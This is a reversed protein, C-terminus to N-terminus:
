ADAHEVEPEPTPGYLDAPSVGRRELMLDTVAWVLADAADPSGDGEYGDATFACLESELAPFSGAHHLRGQEYLLSLPEFRVQKARSATVMKIRIVAGARNAAQRIVHEAMDGGFNREVVIRDAEFELAAEVVRRGWGDPRLSCSRDALVYGEGAGDVGVVVIGQRDRETSGSPDVGVVVRRIGHRADPPVRHADIVEQSLLAGEVEELLEGDIEQRGIRTGEYRSVISRFFQDALNARNEHTSGSTVVVDARGMLQKVLRAPKPTSTAVIRPDPGLRIGFEFLTWAESPAMGKPKWSDIEDCWGGDAQPGRFREPEDAGRYRIVAGNWCLVRAHTIQHQPAQHPPWVGLLGPAEATGRVMVDITDGLTPGAINVTRWEGSDIRSRVYEAATRTKGWGRGTRVLWIFWDGPPAIQKPRAVLRWDSLWESLRRKEPPSLRSITDM